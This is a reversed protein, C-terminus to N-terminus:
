RAAVAAADTTEFSVTSENGASVTVKKTATITKGDVAFEAKLNYSFEKGVTLTPSQFVRRSSTSTTANGDVFLKADAPLTVVITAPADIQGVKPSTKIPEAAPAAPAAQIM